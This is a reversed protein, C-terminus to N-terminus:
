ALAATAVRPALVLLMLLLLVLMWFLRMDLAEVRDTGM